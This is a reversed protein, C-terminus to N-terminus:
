GATELINITNIITNCAEDKTSDFMEGEGAHCAERLSGLAPQFVSKYVSM